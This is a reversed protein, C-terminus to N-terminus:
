GRSAPMQLTLAPSNDRTLKQHAVFQAVRCPAVWPGRSGLGAWAEGLESVLAQRYAQTGARFLAAAGAVALNALIRAAQMHLEFGILSM